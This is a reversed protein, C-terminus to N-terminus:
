SKEGKSDIPFEDKKQYAKIGAMSLLYGVIIGSLLSVDGKTLVIYIEAFALAPVLIIHSYFALVRMNSPSAGESNAKGLFSFLKTLTEKM